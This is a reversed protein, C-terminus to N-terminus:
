MRSRTPRYCQIDFLSARRTEKKAQRFRFCGGRKKKRNLIVGDNKLFRELFISVGEVEELGKWQM